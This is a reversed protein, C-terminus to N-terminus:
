SRACRWRSAPTSAARRPASGRLLRLPVAIDRQREGSASLRAAGRDLRDAERVGDTRCAAGPPVRLHAAPQTDRRPECSQNREFPGTISVHARGAAARPHRNMNFHADYPQRETEILAANKALFAVGVAHPGGDGARSAAPAKDVGEDAYYDGMRNRNPTVTFLQLREGDLTVELQHPETLGEVNENRNRMLRVQVRIRRRAPVHPPRDDGGRTGFPLGDVHEEQTLDPPLSSSASPRRRCRAHRGGPADSEARRLPLTRDADAVPRGRGRQRLRLECRRAAAARRRRRRARPSRPDREPVRHPDAAPVHRHPWSKSAGRRRSRAGRSIPLCRTTPPTTLALRDLRRCPAPAFRASSRRGVDRRLRCRAHRGAHRTRPRRNSNRSNHCTVCYRDITARDTSPTPAAPSSQQPEGARLVASALFLACCATRCLLWRSAM